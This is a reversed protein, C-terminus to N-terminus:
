FLLRVPQINPKPRKAPPSNRRLRPSNRAPSNSNSNSNSNTLGENKRNKRAKIANNINAHVNHLPNRKTARGDPLFYSAFERLNKLRARKTPLLIDNVYSLNLNANQLANAAISKYQNAGVGRARTNRIFPATYSGSEINFRIKTGKKELEGAVLIVRGPTRTPLMFHKSRLELRNRVKVFQLYYKKQSYEVLYLYAGDPLATVTTNRYLRKHSVHHREQIVYMPPLGSPLGRVTGPVVRKASYKMGNMASKPFSHGAPIGFIKHINM